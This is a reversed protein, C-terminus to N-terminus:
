YQFDYNYLKYISLPYIFNIKSSLIGEPHFIGPIEFTEANRTNEFIEIMKRQPDM